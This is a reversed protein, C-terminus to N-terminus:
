EEDPEEEVVAKRRKGGRRPAAKPEQYLEELGHAIALSKDSKCKERVREPWISYALHTWDYKGAELAEWTERLVKQWPRHQFLRWLPAATIQVGDNLNPKWFKAVRLLEDRFDKLERELEALQGLTEEDERSRGPKQLGRIREAVETLKPEVHDLVCRYLTQDTLRHYYLWLTYSRSPTSLPWYIPAKRRSKSYRALHDEWFGGKGPKRLYLRLNEVGLIECAEKEIIEARDKWILDLVKRVHRIMDDSDDPDDPIVNQGEGNRNGNRGPQLAPLEDFICSGTKEAEPVAPKLPWRGFICGVAHSIVDQVGRYTSAADPNASSALEACIMEPAVGFRHALREVGGHLYYSLKNEFRMVSRCHNESERQIAEQGNVWSRWGEPLAELNGEDPLPYATDGYLDGVREDPIALVFVLEKEIARVLAYCKRLAQFQKRYRAALGELLRGCHEHVFGGFLPHCEDDIMSNLEKVLAEVNQVFWQRQEECLEVVPLHQLYGPELHRAATGKMSFDGGGVIAELCYSAVASNLFALLYHKEGDRRPIVGPGPGSFFCGKNLVRASLNSTTRETYTVGAKGYLEDNRTRNLEDKSDWDVMLHVDTRYRSFEGGKALWRWKKRRPLTEPVEWFCRLFRLDDGSTLGAKSVDNPHGDLLNLKRIWFPHIQYAFRSDPMKEFSRPRRSFAKENPTGAALADRVAILAGEKDAESLINFFVSESVPSKTTVYAATEVVADLVGYGLDAMCFLSSKNGLLYSRRWQQLFDSFFATRNTIAGIHGSECLLSVGRSIFGAFLDRATEPLRQYLYQRAPLSAEGFPPNMVVVAYRQRCLDIFAFGQAADNAFLRRQRGQTGEAQKAYEELAALVLTEARNWFDEEAGPLRRYYRVVPAEGLNFEAERYLPFKEEWEQKNQEIAAALSEDIKLLSGVEGALRMEDWVQRVLECLAEAMRETARVQKNEPIQLTRRLLAELRDRRLSALFEDLMKTEGPMPEACVINSREIRPRDLARVDQEKWSKQARLWLSLGAIPVARPDIDIGHLNREIILRPVERLFAEKNPYTAQLPQLGESRVFHEAGREGELDWAEAYVRVFLDFAYLGFHMSGCAPDLLKLDRPDKLPRFPVHRPRRLLEEQSLGDPVDEAPPPEAGEALFVDNPTRVLFRCYDVLATAGRTMEYWLRGLTNDTLFEVVYRSTFFQNRVALERSNRPAQSAARMRRREDASNFYQYIWGITEDKDWLPDIEPHNIQELLQLLVAESPFLRGQPAFRDFLVPLDVALEDFVSFLYCRYADGTEGLATGALRAYLQFGRSQTGRAVSELLIERAEAMRLACLRNLVTFAQERVIRDLLDTTATGPSTARYHELTDRLLQATERRQLDLRLRALDTVDGTEPDLGYVHQLQRTFEAALIARCDRVFRELRNRTPQDFAM